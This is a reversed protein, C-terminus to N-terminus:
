FCGSCSYDGIKEVLVWKQKVKKMVVVIPVSGSMLYNDVSYYFMIYNKNWYYIPESLIIVDHVNPYKKFFVSTFLLRRDMEIFENEPFNDKRWDRKLTDQSYKSYMKRWQKLAFLKSTYDMGNFGSNSPVHESGEGRNFIRLTQSNSEKIKLIFKEKNNIKESKLFVNIPEYSKLYSPVCSFIFFPFLLIAKKFQIM